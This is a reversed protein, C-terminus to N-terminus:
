ALPYRVTACFEGAFPGEGAAAVPLIVQLENFRRFTFSTSTGPTLTIPTGIVANNAGIAQVTIPEPGSDYQLYGTAVLNQGFNNTYVSVTVVAAAGTPVEGAWPMCVKDQVYEQDKCCTLSVSSCNCAM